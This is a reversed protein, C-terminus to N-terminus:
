RASGSTRGAGSWKASSGSGPEPARRTNAPAVPRQCEYYREVALFRQLSM